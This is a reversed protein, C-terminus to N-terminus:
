SVIRIEAIIRTATSCSDLNFALVDGRTITTDWTTLNLDQNISQNTLTLKETGTITDAITPPFNAYTDRWIDVVASASVANNNADMALINWSTIRGSYGVRIFGQLGTTPVVGHGDIDCTVIHIVDPTPIAAIEDDVYKKNVIHNDETPVQEITGEKTAVNKRVAYDDLIGASKKLDVFHVPKPAKPILRSVM